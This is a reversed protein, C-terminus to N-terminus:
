GEKKDVIKRDKIEFGKGVEQIRKVLIVPDVDVSGSWLNVTKYNSTFVTKLNNSIRYDIIKYYMGHREQTLKGIGLDDIFLVKSEAYKEIQEKKELFAYYSMINDLDVSKVITGKIERYIAAALHTKGSRSEGHLYIWSTDRICKKLEDMKSDQPFDSLQANIYIGGFGKTINKELIEKQRFREEEETSLIKENSERKAAEGLVCDCYEDVSVIKDFGLLSMKKEVRVHGTGDCKECKSDSM